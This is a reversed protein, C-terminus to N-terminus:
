NLIKEKIKSEFKPILVGEDANNLDVDKSSEPFINLYYALNHVIWEYEMSLISREWESPYKKEYEKLIKLIAKIENLSKIKYSNYVIMNPDNDYRSDVVYINGNNIVDDDDIVVFIKKADVNAFYSDSFRHYEENYNIKPNKRSNLKFIIFSYLIFLVFSKRRRNKM